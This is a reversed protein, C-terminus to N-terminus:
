DKGGCGKTFTSNQFPVVKTTGCPASFLHRVKCAASFSQKTVPCSKLRAALGVLHIPAKCAASFSAMAGDQIQKTVPYSKLRAALGAFHIPAKCAASFSPGSPPPPKLGRMFGVPDIGAKAASPRTEGIEGLIDLEEAVEKAGAAHKKGTKGLVQGKETAQKAGSPLKGAIRVKM